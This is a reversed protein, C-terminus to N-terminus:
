LDEEEEEDRHLSSVAEGYWEWNDVGAAYLAALEESDKQWNAASKELQSIHNELVKIYEKLKKIGEQQDEWKYKDSM